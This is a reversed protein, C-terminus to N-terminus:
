EGTPLSADRVQRAPAHFLAVREVAHDVEGRRLRRRWCLQWRGRRLQAAEGPPPEAVPWLPRLLCARAVPPCGGGCRGGDSGRGGALRRRTCARGGGGGRKVPPSPAQHCSDLELALAAAAPGKGGCGRNLSQPGAPASPQHIHAGLRKHVAHAGGGELAALTHTHTHWNGAHGGSAGAKWPQWPTPTLTPTPAPAGAPQSGAQRRKGQKGGDQLDAFNHTHPAPTPQRRM